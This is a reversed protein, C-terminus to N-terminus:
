ISPQSDSRRPRRAARPSEASTARLAPRDRRGTCTATVDMAAVAGRREVGGRPERRTDEMRVM